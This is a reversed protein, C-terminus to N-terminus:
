NHEYILTQGTPVSKVNAVFILREKVWYDSITLTDSNDIIIGKDKDIKIDNKASLPFSNYLKQDNLLEEKSIIDAGMATYRYLKDIQQKKDFVVTYLRLYKKSGRRIICGNLTNLQSAIDECKVLGNSFITDFAITKSIITATPSLSDLFPKKVSHVTKGKVIADDGCSFIVFLLLLSPILTKM